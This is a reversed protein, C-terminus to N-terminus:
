LASLWWMSWGTPTLATTWPMAVISSMGYIATDKALGKMGGAKGQTTHNDSM